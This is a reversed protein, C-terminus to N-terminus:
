EHIHGLPRECATCRRVWAEASTSMDGALGQLKRATNWSTNNAIRSFVNVVDYVTWTKDLYGSAYDMAKNIIPKPLRQEEGVQRILALANGPVEVKASRRYDTLLDPLTGLIDKAQLELNELVDDVTQGKVKVKALSETNTMGNTCVLRHLYAEVSPPTKKLDAPIAFRVGAHTIDGIEPLEDLKRDLIGNPDVTTSLQDDVVDLFLAAGDNYFHAIRDTPRFLHAVVEAIGDPPLVIRNPAYFEEIEDEASIRVMVDSEYKKGLWHNLNVAKLAGACKEIYTFPVGLFRCLSREAVEDLDYKEGTSELHVHGGNESIAVDALVTQIYQDTPKPLLTGLDAVSLQHDSM